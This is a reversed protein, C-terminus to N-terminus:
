APIEQGDNAKMNVRDGALHLMMSTEYGGAHDGTRRPNGKEIVTFEFTSIVPEKGDETKFTYCVEDLMNQQLQPNHGSIPEFSVARKVAEVDYVKKM